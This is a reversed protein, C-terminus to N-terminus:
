QLASSDYIKNILYGESFEKLLQIFGSWEKLWVDGSGGGEKAHTEVQVSFYHTM